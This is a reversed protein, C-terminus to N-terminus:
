VGQDETGTSSQVAEGTCGITARLREIESVRDHYEAKWYGIEERLREVEAEAEGIYSNTGESGMHVSVRQGCQGCRLDSGISPM